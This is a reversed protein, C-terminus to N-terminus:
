FYISKSMNEHTKAREMTAKAPFSLKQIVFIVCFLFLNM